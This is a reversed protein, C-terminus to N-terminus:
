SIFASLTVFGELSALWTRFGLGLHALRPLLRLRYGEKNVIHMMRAERKIARVKTKSIASRNYAKM